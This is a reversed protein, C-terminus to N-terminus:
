LMESNLIYGRLTKRIKKYEPITKSVLAWFKSGHNHEQLHCLEHVVVYDIAEQPLYSLKFNFQLNGSRTCSGWLSRQNRIRVTQYSFRYLGNFFELRDTIRKLFDTKHQEYLEDSQPLVTKTKLKQMKGYHKLIWAAKERLFGEVFHSGGFRPVTVILAGTMNMAMRLYRAKRSVRVEYRIKQTDLTIERVDSVNKLM